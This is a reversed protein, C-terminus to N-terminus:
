HHLERAEDTEKAGKEPTSKASAAGNASASCDGCNCSIIGIMKFQSTQTLVEEELRVKEATFTARLSFPHTKSSETSYPGDAIVNVMLIIRMVSADALVRMNDDTMGLVDALAAM